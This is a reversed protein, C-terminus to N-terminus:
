FNTVEAGKPPNYKFLESKSRQSKKISTFDYETVNELEDSFSVAKLQNEEESITIKLDKVELRKQDKPKLNFTLDGGVSKKNILQLENWIESEGFLLALLASSKRAQQAKFHSVQVKGGMDEPQKEELWIDKGSLVLLSPHPDNIKMRIKGKSFDLTGTAEKPSNLWPSTIKKKVKMSVSAASQLDEFVQSLNRLETKVKSSAKKVTPKTTKPTKKTETKEEAKIQKKDDAKEEEPTALDKLDLNEKENQDSPEARVTPTQACSLLSLAAGSM